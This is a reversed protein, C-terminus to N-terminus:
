QFSDGCSCSSTANPNKIEFGTKMLTETWDIVTGQVHPVSTPDIAIRVGETESIVDADSVVDDFFLGYRFGACGGPQVELRLVMDAGGPEGALFERIKTAAAATVSVVTTPAPAEETRTRTRLEM